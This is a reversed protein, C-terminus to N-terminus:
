LKKAARPMFRDKGKQIKITYSNAKKDKGRVGSGKRNEPSLPLTLPSLRFSALNV